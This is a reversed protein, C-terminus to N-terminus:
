KKGTNEKAEPKTNATGSQKSSPTQNKSSTTSSTNNSSKVEGGERASKEAVNFPCNVVSKEKRADEKIM